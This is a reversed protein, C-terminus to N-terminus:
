NSSILIYKIQRLEAVPASVPESYAITDVIYLGLKTRVVEAKIILPLPPSLLENTLARGEGHGIAIPLKKQQKCINACIAGVLLLGTQAMRESIRILPVTLYRPFHGRCERKKITTKAFLTKKVPYFVAEWIHFFPPRESVLCEVDGRRLFVVEEAKLTNLSDLSIVSMERMEKVERELIIKNKFVM